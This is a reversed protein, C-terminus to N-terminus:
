IEKSLNSLKGDKWLSVWLGEVGSSEYIVGAVDPRKRGFFQFEKITLSQIEESEPHNLHEQKLVVLARQIADTDRALREASPLSRRFATPDDSLV